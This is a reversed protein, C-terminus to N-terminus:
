RMVSEIGMASKRVFKPLVKEGHRGVIRYAFSLLSLVVLHDWLRYGRRKRLLFRSAFGITRRKVRFPEFDTKIRYRSRESRPWKEKYKDKAEKIAAVIEPNWARFYYSRALAMLTFTDQMFEIDRVPLLAQGALAKMEEFLPLVEEVDRLAEEHDPVFCRMLKRVSSTCFICDWYVHFLPPIRVRRFFLEERAFSPIYLLRHIVTDSLRLLQIAAKARKEGLYGEISEECSRKYRFTGVASVCNLAIWVEEDTARETVFPRRSFGHWGGTQCWMSFGVLNKDEALEKQFCECDWGIFSPYEGAGEYERRGQFEIIKAQKTKALVESLPLYRFFDSDGHKFSLILAKSRIGKVMQAVRDRHWILDGIPHAGVTWTRLILTKGLEEFIPLLRQLLGRAERATRVHLRSRVADKVDLGDSGVIRLIFGSVEPFNEFFGRIMEGYWEEMSERSKGVREEIAQSTCIVDSTVFVRMGRDLHCRMVRRFREGLSGNRVRVEEEFWPHISLHALDDLTVANYGLESVRRAFHGSEEEIVQWQKEAEAGETELHGFPIKSWNIRRKSYGRFFPAIADILFIKEVSSCYM